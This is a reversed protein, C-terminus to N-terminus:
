FLLEGLLDTYIDELTVLDSLHIRENIQHITKNPVGIEVVQTHEDSFFRGDSTGGATSLVPYRGTNKQIAREVASILSSHHKHQTFYPECPREWQLAFQDTVGAVKEQILDELQQMTFQHSYRINFCISCQAPVINDTFDGSDIHTIQLSTGPFDTSGKDWQISGIAEVVKAMKHIANDAYQPYAVHGQKGSVHIRGSIAGRRGVKITDGTALKATPEGVICHDLRIGQADLYRKIEKSGYEAEGEEDSTILWVFKHKLVINGELVKQTAALMAAVGTKMDAAGRGVLEGAIISPEFPNCRWNELPGPPVVDTHGAFAVVQGGQGLEAVLNKVGNVEFQHCSFGLDHLQGM